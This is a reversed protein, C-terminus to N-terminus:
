SQLNRSVATRVNEVKGGRNVAPRGTVGRYKETDYWTHVLVYLRTYTHETYVRVLITSYRTTVKIKERAQMYLYQQPPVAAVDVVVDTLQPCTSREFVQKCVWTKSAPVVWSARISYALTCCCHM